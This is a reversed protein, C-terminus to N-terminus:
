NDLLRGEAQAQLPELLQAATKGLVPHRWRPAIEAIPRLVFPRHPIGPHPLVPPPADRVLGNFDLLDLDLSRPGWKEYRRRGAQKEINQLYGLLAEPTMRTTIRVVANLFDPQDIKGYPSTRVLSSARILHCGATDLCRIARRLVNSPPGWPGDINSGLGILIM